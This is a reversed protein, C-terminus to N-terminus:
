RWFDRTSISVGLAVHLMFADYDGVRAITDLEVFWGLRSTLKGWHGIGVLLDYNSGLHSAGVAAVDARIYPSWWAHWCRGQWPRVRAGLELSPELRDLDEALGGDIAFYDGIATSVRLSVTTDDEIWGTLTQYFLGGEGGLQLSVPAAVAPAALALV